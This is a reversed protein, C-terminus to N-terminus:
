GHVLCETNESFYWQMHCIFRSADDMIALAIPVKLQGDKDVVRRTGHHFDLHWLGGIDPYEYSRIERNEVRLQAKYQGSSCDRIRIRRRMGHFNLYRKITSYSPIPELEPNLSVFVLIFLACYVKRGAFRLSAPMTRKRCGDNRCCLSYRLCAKGDLHVLAQGRPKRLYHSDDLPGDCSRCKGLKAALYTDKDLSQLTQFFSSDELIELM